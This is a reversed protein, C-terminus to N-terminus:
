GMVMSMTQTYNECVAHTTLPSVTRLILDESGMQDSSTTQPQGKWQKILLLLTQLLGFSVPAAYGLSVRAAYGFSVRAAYGLSVRAAYLMALKEYADM